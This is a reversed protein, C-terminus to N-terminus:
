TKSQARIGQRNSRAPNTGHPPLDAAHLVACRLPRLRTEILGLIASTVPPLRPRPFLVTSARASLPTFEIKVNTEFDASASSTTEATVFAPAFAAAKWSSVPFTPSNSLKTPRTAEVALSHPASRM